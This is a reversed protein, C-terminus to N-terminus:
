SQYRDMGVLAICCILGSEVDGRAPLIGVRRFAFTQIVTKCIMVHLVGTQFKQSFVVCGSFLHQIGEVVDIVVRCNGDDM